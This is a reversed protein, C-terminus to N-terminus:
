DSSQGSSDGGCVVSNLRGLLIFLDGMVIRVDNFNLMCFEYDRSLNLMGNSVMDDVVVASVALACRFLDRSSISIPLLKTLMGALKSIDKDVLVCVSCDGKVLKLIRAYVAELAYTIMKFDDCGVAYSSVGNGICGFMKALGLKVFYGAISPPSKMFMSYAVSFSYSRLLLSFRSSVRLSRRKGDLPAFKVLCGLSCDADILERYELKMLKVDDYEDFLMGGINEDM